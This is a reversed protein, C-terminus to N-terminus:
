GDRSVNNGITSRMPEYTNEHVTLIKKLGNQIVRGFSFFFDPRNSLVFSVVSQFLKATVLITSAKPSFFFM